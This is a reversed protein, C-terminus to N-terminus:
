QLPLSREFKMFMGGSPGSFNAASAFPISLYAGGTIVTFGRYNRLLSAESCPPCGPCCFQICNELKKHLPCFEQGGGLNKNSPEM